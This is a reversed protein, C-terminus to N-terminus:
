SRKNRAIESVRESGAFKLCSLALPTCFAIQHTPYKFKALVWFAERSITGSLYDAIYSYVQDDAMPGEVIDYDHASGNRCSVIFDLWEETMTEFKLIKTDACMTYEYFNVTPTDFKLSWRQAQTKIDTCYFGSGFDKTYKSIRIEPTSIELAGGHYLIM